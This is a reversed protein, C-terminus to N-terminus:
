KAVSKRVLKYPELPEFIYLGQLDGQEKANPNPDHFLEFHDQMVVVHRAGQYLTESMCEAIYLGKLETTIIPHEKSHFM